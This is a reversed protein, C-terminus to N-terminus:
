AGGGDGLVKPVEFFAGDAKPARSLIVEPSLPESPVDERWVNVQDVAHPMPEVGEIDVQNMTEVYGLVAELQEAHRHVEDDSLRLRSLTAVKRVDDETIHGKSMCAM